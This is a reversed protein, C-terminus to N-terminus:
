IPFLQLFFVECIWLFAKPSLPIGLICTSHLAILILSLFDTFKLFKSTKAWLPSSAWWYLLFFPAGIWVVGILSWYTVLDHSRVDGFCAGLWNKSLYLNRTWNFMVTHAISNHWYIFSLPRKLCIKLPFFSSFNLQDCSFSSRLIAWLLIM